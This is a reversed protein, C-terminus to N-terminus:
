ERKSCNRMRQLNRRRHRNSVRREPRPPAISFWLKADAETVLQMYHSFLIRVNHGAELATQNANKTAALRYSVFSHRLANRAMRLPEQKKAVLDKNIKKGLRVLANSLEVIEVVKGIKKASLQLWKKANDPLPALRRAVTKSKSAKLEVFGESLDKEPWHIESWHLRRAEAARLGCFGCLVLFPRLAPTAHQLLLSMQDPTYIEIDRGPERAKTAKDAATPKDLLYGVRRAFNFLAVLKRRYTNRTSPGCNMARLYEDLGATTINAINTHFREAFLLLFRTLEALYDPSVGDRAQIKLFEGVVDSVAKDPISESHHLKWFRLADPISHGGVIQRAAIYDRVAEEITVGLPKLKQVSDVFLRSDAPSLKLVEREQNEIKTAVTKAHSKAKKLDAFFKRHRKKGEYWSVTYGSYGKSRTEYIPISVSGIKEVISKREQRTAAM